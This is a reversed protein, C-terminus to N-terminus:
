SRALDYAFELKVLARVVTQQMINGTWGKRMASNFVTPNSDCFVRHKPM